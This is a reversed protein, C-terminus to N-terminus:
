TVKRAAKLYFYRMAILAIMYVIGGVFWASNDITSNTAIIGPMAIILFTGFRKGEPMNDYAKNIKYLWKIM